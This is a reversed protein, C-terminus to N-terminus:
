LLLGLGSSVGAVIGGGVSQGGKGGVDGISVCLTLLNEQWFQPLVNLV